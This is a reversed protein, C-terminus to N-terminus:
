VPWQQDPLLCPRYQRNYRIENSRHNKGSQLWIPYYTVM